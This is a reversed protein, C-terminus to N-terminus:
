RAEIVSVDMAGIGEIEAHILDGGVVPGVGECTGTMIVDGPELTYFRSAWAIQEAIYLIMDRTNAVQRDKGNVRLRLDLAQPDAIEDATVMWPGLVSYSDLSKRLSRDEAGRVTMDLAIAYGAIYSLAESEPVNRATKGIVAGLEIEHHTLREPMSIRVAQGCGILSSNAKLFLGQELVSGTQRNTFTAVDAAAEEVHKQYNVPVGIIKGPNAVPSLLRVSALPHSPASPLLEGAAAQFRDLNVILWDGSRNPYPPAPLARLAASVDFVVGDDVIGPRDDNFWCIKM